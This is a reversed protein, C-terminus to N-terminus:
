KPWHEPLTQFVVNFQQGLIRSAEATIKKPQVVEVTLHTITKKELFKINCYTIRLPINTLNHLEQCYASRSELFTIFSSSAARERISSVHKNSNNIIFVHWNITCININIICKVSVFNSSSRTNRNHWNKQLFKTVCQVYVLTLFLDANPVSIRVNIIKRVILM